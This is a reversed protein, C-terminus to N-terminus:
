GREQKIDLFWQPFNEESIESAPFPDPIDLEKFKKQTIWTKYANELAEIYRNSVGSEYNARECLETADINGESLDYIFRMIEDSPFFWEGHKRFESFKKHIFNELSFNGDLFYIVRLREPSAIQLQALRSDVDQKTFGIKIAGTEQGQIFYVKGM